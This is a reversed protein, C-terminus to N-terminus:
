VSKMTRTNANSFKFLDMDAPFYLFNVQQLHDVPKRSIKKCLSYPLLNSGMFINYLYVAQLKTILKTLTIPANQDIDAPCNLLIM